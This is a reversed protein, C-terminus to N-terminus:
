VSKQRGQGAPKLRQLAGRWVAQIRVMSAVILRRKTDFHRAHRRYRAEFRAANCRWARQIRAAARHLQLREADDRKMACTKKDLAKLMVFEDGGALERAQRMKRSTWLFFQQQCDGLLEKERQAAIRQRALHESHIISAFESGLLPTFYSVLPSATLRHECRCRFNDLTDLPCRRFSIDVPLQLM